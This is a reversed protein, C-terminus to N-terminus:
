PSPSGADRHASSIERLWDRFDDLAPNPRSDAPSVFYYRNRYEYVEDSLLELSGEAVEDECLYLPVLAIGQGHVAATLSQLGDPYVLHQHEMEALDGDVIDRWHIHQSSINKSDYYYDILHHGQPRAISELRGHKDIYAPSAVAYIKLNILLDSNLKDFEGDAFRIAGDFGDNKFTVLQLSEELVVSVGPHIEYFDGLKPMLWKFMLTPPASIRLTRAAKAAGICDAAQAIRQLSQQVEAAFTEAAETLTFSNASRHFLEQGFYDELNRLQQSVAGQSVCLEEAARSVSGHRSVAEFARLANMPPLKMM